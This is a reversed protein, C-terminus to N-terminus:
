VQLVLFSFSTPDAFVKNINVFTITFTNDETIAYNDITVQVPSLTCTILIAFNVGNTANTQLVVTYNGVSNKTISSVNFGNAVINPTNILGFARIAMMPFVNNQNAYFLQAIPSAPVSARGVLVGTPAQLNGTFGISTNAGVSEVPLLAPPNETYYTVQEHFGNGISGAAVHDVELFSAINGFNTRIKPCDDAPNNNPNPITVDIPYSM